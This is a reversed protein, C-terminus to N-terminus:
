IAELKSPTALEAVASATKRDFWGPWDNERWGIVRSLREEAIAARRVSQSIVAQANRYQEAYRRHSEVTGVGASVADDAEGREIAAAWAEHVAIRRDLLRLVDDITWPLTLDWEQGSQM